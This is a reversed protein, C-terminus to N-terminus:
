CFMQIILGFTLAYRQCLYVFTKIEFNRIWFQILDKRKTKKCSQKNNAVELMIIASM